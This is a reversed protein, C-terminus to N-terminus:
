VRASGKLDLATRGSIWPVHRAGIVANRAWIVKPRHANRNQLSPLEGVSVGQAGRPHNHNIFRHRMGEPGFFVRDTSRNQEATGASRTESDHAYYSVDM